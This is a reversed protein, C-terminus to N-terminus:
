QQSCHAWALSVIEKDPSTLVVQKSHLNNVELLFYNMGSADVTYALFRHDPSIRCSGIHVYGASHIFTSFYLIIFICLWCHFM